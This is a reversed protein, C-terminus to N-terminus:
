AGLIEELKKDIEEIQTQNKHQLEATEIIKPAMEETIVKTASKTHFTRVPNRRTQVFLLRLIENLKLENKLKEANEKPLIVRFYALYAETMKNIPYSLKRKKIDGEHDIIGGLQLAKNKMKQHFDLAKEETFAPTILYVIEYLKNDKDMSLIIAYTLQNRLRNNKLLDSVM